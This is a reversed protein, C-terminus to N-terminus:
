FAQRDISVPAYRIEPDGPPSFGRRTWVFGALTVYCRARPFREPLAV